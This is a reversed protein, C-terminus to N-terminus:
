PGPSTPRVLPIVEEPLPISRAARAKEINAPSLELGYMSLLVDMIQQVRGAPLFSVDDQGVCRLLLCLEVLHFPGQKCGEAARFDPQFYRVRRPDVMLFGAKEYAKLRIRTSEKQDDWPEMEAVLLLPDDRRQPAFQERLLRAQAAPCGRMWGALGSRRWPPLVLNHSLHVLTGGGLTPPPFIITHDRVAAPQDGEFALVMEYRALPFDREAPPDQWRALRRAIVRKQEMEGIAGFEEDLLDFAQEFCPDDTSRICHFRWPISSAGALDREGPAFDGPLFQQPDITL